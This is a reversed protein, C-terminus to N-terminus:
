TAGRRRKPRPPLDCGRLLLKARLQEWSADVDIGYSRLFADVEEDCMDEPARTALDEPEVVVPATSARELVRSFVDQSKIKKRTAM